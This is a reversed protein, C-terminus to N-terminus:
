GEYLTIIGDPTQYRRVKRGNVVEIGNLSKGFIPHVSETTPAARRKDLEGEVKKLIRDVDSPSFRSAANKLDSAQNKTLMGGLERVLEELQDRDLRGLDGLRRMFDSVPDAAESLRARGEGRQLKAQRAGLEDHLQKAAIEAELPTMANFARPNTLRPIVVSEAFKVFNEDDMSRCGQALHRLIPLVQKQRDRKWRVVNAATIETTNLRTM